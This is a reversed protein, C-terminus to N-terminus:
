NYLGMSIKQLYETNVDACLIFVQRSEANRFLRAFTVCMNGTSVSLYPATIFTTKGLGGDILMYFYDKM